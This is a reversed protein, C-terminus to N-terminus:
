DRPKIEFLVRETQPPSDRLELIKKRLEEDVVQTAACALTEGKVRLEVRPNRLMNLCWHKGEIRTSSAYFSGRYYIFRLEVRRPQGTKRGTTTLDAMVSSGEKLNMAM